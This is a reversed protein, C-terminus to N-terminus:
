YLNNGVELLIKYVGKKFNDKALLFQIQSYLRYSGTDTFEAKRVEDQSSLRKLPSITTFTDVLKKYAEMAETKKNFEFWLKIDQINDIWHEKEYTKQIIELKGITFKADFDPHKTFIYTNAVTLFEPEKVYDPPYATWGGLEPKKSLIPVYKHLFASVATDANYTYIKFFLKNTYDEMTQASGKQFTMVLLILFSFRILFLKFRIIVLPFLM